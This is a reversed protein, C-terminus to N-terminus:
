NRGFMFIEIALWDVPICMIILMITLLIENKQLSIHKIKKYVILIVTCLLAINVIFFYVLCVTGLLKKNEGSYRLAFMLLIVCCGVFAWLINRFVKM